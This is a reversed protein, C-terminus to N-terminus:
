VKTVTEAALLYPDRAKRLYLYCLKLLLLAPFVAQTFEWYNDPYGLLFLYVVLSLMAWHMRPYEQSRLRRFARIAKIILYGVGLLGMFGIEGYISIWNSVPFNMIGIGPPLSRYIILIYHETATSIYANLPIGIRLYEKSMILSARSAYQGPGLGIFPVLPNEIPLTFLTYYAARSKGSYSSESIDVIRELYTPANSLNRPLLIWVSIGLFVLISLALAIAGGRKRVLQKYSRSILNVLNIGLVITGIFIAVVFLIITHLVSAAIWVLLAFLIIVGYSFSLKRRSVSVQFLILTSILISFMANGGAVTGTFGPEITGKVIDGTGLDFTGASIYGTIAQILGYGFEFLLFGATIWSLRELLTTNVIPKFDFFLILFASTTVFYAYYNIFSFEPMLLSYIWGILSYLLLVGLYLLIHKQSRLNVIFIMGILFIFVSFQGLEKSPSFAILLALFYMGVFKQQQFTLKRKRATKIDVNVAM